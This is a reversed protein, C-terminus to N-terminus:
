GADFLRDGQEDIIRRGKEAAMNAADDKSAHTDARIFRHERVSGDAETKRILGATLWQGGNRQPAPHITYGNYEIGDGPADAADKAAGGGFLSKFSFAM